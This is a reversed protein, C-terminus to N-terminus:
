EQDTGPTSANARRRSVSRIRLYIILVGIGFGVIAGLLATAMTSSTKTANQATPVQVYRDTNALPDASNRAKWSAIYTDAASRAMEAALEPSPGVVSMSIINTNGKQIAEVPPPNSVGTAQTINDAMTAKLMGIYILETDLYRNLSDSSVDLPKSPDSGPGGNVLATSSYGVGMLASVVVALAAVVLTSVGLIFADGWRVNVPLKMAM